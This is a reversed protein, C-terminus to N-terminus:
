VFRRRDPHVSERDRSVTEFEISASGCANGGDAGLKSGSRTAVALLSSGARIPM